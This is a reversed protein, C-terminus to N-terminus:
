REAASELLELVDPDLPDIRGDSLRDAQLWAHRLDDVIETRGTPAAIILRRGFDWLRLSRSALLLNVLAIRRQREAVATLGVRHPVGEPNEVRDLWEPGGGLIGCASCM